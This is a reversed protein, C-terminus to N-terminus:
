VNQKGRVGKVILDATVNVVLSMLMLLTGVRATNSTASVTFSFGPTHM